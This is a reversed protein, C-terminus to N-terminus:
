LAMTENVPLAYCPLPQYAAVSINVTKSRSDPLYSLDLSAIQHKKVRQLFIIEAPQYLSSAITLASMGADTECLKRSGDSSLGNEREATEPLKALSLGHCCSLPVCSGNSHSAWKWFIDKMQDKSKLFLKWIWVLPFISIVRRWNGHGKNSDLSCWDTM